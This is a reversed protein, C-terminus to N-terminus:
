DKADGKAALLHDNKQMFEVISPALRIVSHWQEKYLTVPWRGLGYLSLGGKASVKMTIPSKKALKAEAAALKAKLIELESPMTIITPTQSRAGAPNVSPVSRRLFLGSVTEPM